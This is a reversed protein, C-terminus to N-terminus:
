SLMELLKIEIPLDKPEQPISGKYVGFQRISKYINYEDETGEDEIVSMRFYLDELTQAQIQSYYEIYPITSDSISSQTAKVVVFGHKSSKYPLMFFIDDKKPIAAGLSKVGGKYLIQFLFMYLVEFSIIFTSFLVPITDNIEIGMGTKALFGLLGYMIHGQIKSRLSFNSVALMQLLKKTMEQVTVRVVTSKLTVPNLVRTRHYAENFKTCFTSFTILSDANDELTGDGEQQWDVDYINECKDKFLDVFKKTETDNMLSKRLKGTYKSVNKRIDPGYPFTQNSAQYLDYSPIYNETTSKLLSYTLKQNLAKGLSEATHSNEINATSVSNILDGSCQLIFVLISHYVMDLDQLYAYTPRIDKLVLDIAKYFTISDGSHQKRVLRAMEFADTLKENKAENGDFLGIYALAIIHMVFVSTLQGLLVPKLPKKNWLAMLGSLFCSVAMTVLVDTLGYSEIGDLGNDNLEEIKGKSSSSVSSSIIEECTGLTDRMLKYAFTDSNSEFSFQFHKFETIRASVNKSFVHRSKLLFCFKGFYDQCWSFSETPEAYIAVDAVNQLFNQVVKPSIIQHLLHIFKHYVDPIKPIEFQYGHYPETVKKLQSHFLHKESDDLTNLIYVFLKSQRSFSM